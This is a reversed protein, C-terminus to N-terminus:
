QLVFYNKRAPWPLGENIKSTLTSSCPNEACVRLQGRKTRIRDAHVRTPYGRQGLACGHVLFEGLQAFKVM